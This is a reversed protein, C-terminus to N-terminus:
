LVGAATVVNMEYKKWGDETFMWRPTVTVRGHKFKCCANLSEEETMDKGSMEGRVDCCRYKNPGVKMCFGCSRHSREYM